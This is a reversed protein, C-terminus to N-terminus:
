IAGLHHGLAQQLHARTARCTMPGTEALYLSMELSEAAQFGHIHTSAADFHVEDAITDQDICALLSLVPLM